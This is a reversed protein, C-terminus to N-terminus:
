GDEQIEKCIPTHQILSIKEEFKTIELKLSTLHSGCQFHYFRAFLKKRSVKLSGLNMNRFLVAKRLRYLSASSNDWPRFDKNDKMMLFAIENSFALLFNIINQSWGKERMTWIRFIILIKKSISKRIWLFVNLIIKQWKGKIQHSGESIASFSESIYDKRYNQPNNYIKITKIRRCKRMKGGYIHAWDAMFYSFHRQCTKQPKSGKSRM